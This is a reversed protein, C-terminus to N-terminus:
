PDLRAANGRAEGHRDLSGEDGPAREGPLVSASYAARTEFSPHLAHVRPGM